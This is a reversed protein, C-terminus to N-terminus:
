GRIERVKKVIAAADIEEYALLEEPKGSRPMKRIALSHIPTSEYILASRVAEAMGGEPYHDEVAILAGTEKCAQVLTKVDVPKISYLDIVRTVIGQAKLQEYAKLCEYLTVGAGILTVQDDESWRLVKSGGIKFEEEPRYLPETQTIRMYGIGPQEILLKVLKEQSVHDAAYLVTSGHIARFIAVDELGM